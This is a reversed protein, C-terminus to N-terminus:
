QQKVYFRFQKFQHVPVLSWPDYDSKYGKCIIDNTGGPRETCVAYVCCREGPAGQYKAYTYRFHTGPQIADAKVEVFNRLKDPFLKFEDAAQLPEVPPIPDAISATTKQKKRAPMNKTTPFPNKHPTYCTQTYLSVIYM